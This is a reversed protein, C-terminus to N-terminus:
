GHPEHSCGGIEGRLRSRFRLHQSDFLLPVKVLAESRGKALKFWALEGVRADQDPERWILGVLDPDANMGYSGAMKDLSPEGSEAMRNLQHLGIVAVGARRAIWKLRKTLNSLEKWGSDDPATDVIGLYDIIILRVDRQRKQKRIDALIAKESIVEDHLWVPLGQFSTIVSRAREVEPVTIGGMRARRLMIHSQQAVARAGHQHNPMELTYMCTPWGKRGAQIAIQLALASKGHSTPAAILALEQEEIVFLNHEDIDVALPAYAAPNDRTQEWRALAQTTAAFISVPENSLSDGMTDMISDVADTAIGDPDQGDYANKMATLCASIIRRLRHKEVVINAYHSAHTSTTTSEALGVLYSPGGLAALRGTRQLEETVTVLEVPRGRDRLNEIVQWINRHGEHFFADRTLTLTDAIEPEILISGLVAAEAELSHPM